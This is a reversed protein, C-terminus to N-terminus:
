MVQFMSNNDVNATVQNTIVVAIGYQETLRSLARLFMNMHQQREALEGRGTYESRYM